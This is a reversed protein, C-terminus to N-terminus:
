NPLTRVTGQRQSIYGPMQSVVSSFALFFRLWPLFRLWFKIEYVLQRVSLLFYYVLFREVEIFILFSSFAFCDTVFMLCLLRYIAYEMVAEHLLWKRYRVCTDLRIVVEYTMCLTLQIFTTNRITGFIFVCYRNHFWCFL